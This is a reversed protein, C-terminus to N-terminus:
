TDGQMKIFRPHSPFSSTPSVLRYEQSKSYIQPMLLCWGSASVRNKVKAPSEPTDLSM